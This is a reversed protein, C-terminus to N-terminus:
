DFKPSYDGYLGHTEQLCYYNFTFHLDHTLRSSLFDLDELHDDLPLTTDYFYRSERM